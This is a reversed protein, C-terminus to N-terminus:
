PMLPKSSPTTPPLHIMARAALLAAVLAAKAGGLVAMPVAWAVASVVKPNHPAMAKSHCIKRPRKAKSVM